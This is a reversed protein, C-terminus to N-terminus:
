WIIESYEANLSSSAAPSNSNSSEDGYLLKRYKEIQKMNEEYSNSTAEATQTVETLKDIKNDYRGEVLKVLNHEQLVWDITLWKAGSAISKRMFDSALMKDFLQIWWSLKQRDPDAKVRANFMKGRAPTLKQIRPFGAPTLKDNWFTLVSEVTADTNFAFSLTREIIEEKIINEQKKEEPNTTDGPNVTNGQESRETHPTPNQAASAAVKTVESRSPRPLLKPDSGSSPQPTPALSDSAFHLDSIKAGAINRKNYEITVRAYEESTIGEYGKAVLAAHLEPYNKAMGSLRAKDSRNEANAAWSNEEAWKYLSYTGDVSKELWQLELLTPVLKGEEGDWKAAIEIQEETMDSLIGTPKYTAAWCWLFTLAAIGECGLRKKLQATRLDSYFKVSIRFDTNMTNGGLKNNKFVMKTEQM